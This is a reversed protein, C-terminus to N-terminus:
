DCRDHSNTLCFSCCNVPSNDISRDSKCHSCNDSGTGCESSQEEGAVPLVAQRYMRYVRLPVDPMYARESQVCQRMRAKCDPLVMTFDSLVSWRHKAPHSYKIAARNDERFELHVTQGRMNGPSFWNVLEPVGGIMVLSMNGGPGHTINENRQQSIFQVAAIAETLNKLWGAVTSQLPCVVSAAPLAPLVAENLQDLAAEECTCDV